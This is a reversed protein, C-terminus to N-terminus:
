AVAVFVPASRSEPSTAVDAIVLATGPRFTAGVELARNRDQLEIRNLDSAKNGALVDRCYLVQRRRVIQWKAVFIRKAFKRDQYAFTM